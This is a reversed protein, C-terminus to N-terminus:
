GREAEKNIDSLRDRPQEADKMMFGVRSRLEDESTNNDIFPYDLWSIAASLKSAIEVAEDLKREAETARSVWANKMLVDNDRKYFDSQARLAAVEAILAELTVAAKWRLDVQKTLVPDGHQFYAIGEDCCTVAVREMGVGNDVYHYPDCGCFPCDGSEGRLEDILEAHDGSSALATLGFMKEALLYAENMAARYTSLYEADGLMLCRRELEEKFAAVKERPTLPHTM